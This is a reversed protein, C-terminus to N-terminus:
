PKALKERWAAVGNQRTSADSWPDIDFAEGLQARLLGAVEIRAALQPHNLGDLLLAPNHEALKKLGASAAKRISDERQACLEFFDNAAKQGVIPNADLALKDAANLKDELRKQRLVLEETQSVGNTVFQVFAEAESYGAARTAEDGSPSLIMFTPVAQVNYQKAEDPYEDIDLAVHSISKLTLLVTENTLTTRTMLKCPGCWSATFYVLVPQQNTKATGLAIDLNTSWGTPVAATGIRIGLMLALTIPSSFKMDLNLSVPLCLNKVM